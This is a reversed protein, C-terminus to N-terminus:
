FIAAEGEFRAKFVRVKPYFGIPARILPTRGYPRVVGFLRGM